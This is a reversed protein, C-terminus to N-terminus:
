ERWQVKGVEIGVIEYSADPREEAEGRRVAAEYGAAIEDIMWQESLLGHRNVLALTQPPLGIGEFVWERLVSWGGFLVVDFGSWSVADHNLRIGTARDPEGTRIAILENAPANGNSFALLAKAAELDPCLEIGLGGAQIRQDTEADPEAAAPARRCHPGRRCRVM